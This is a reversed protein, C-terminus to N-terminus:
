VKLRHQDSALPRFRFSASTKRSWDPHKLSTSRLTAEWVTTPNRGTRSCNPWSIYQVQVEHLSLSSQSFAVFFNINNSTPIIRTHIPFWSFCVAEHDSTLILWFSSACCPSDQMLQLALTRECYSILTLNKSLSVSPIVIEGTTRKGWRLAASELWGDYPSLNVLGIIGKLGTKATMATLVQEPLAPGALLQASEQSQSLSRNCWVCFICCDLTGLLYSGLRKWVEIHQGFAHSAM